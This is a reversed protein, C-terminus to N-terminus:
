VHTQTAKCTYRIFLAGLPVATKLYVALDSLRVYFSNSELLTSRIKRKMIIKIHSVPQLDNNHTNSIKLKFAMVM